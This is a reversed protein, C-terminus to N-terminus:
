KVTPTRLQFFAKQPVSEKPLRLTVEEMGKSSPTITKEMQMQDMTTPDFPLTTSAQIEAPSTLGARRRLTVEITTADNNVKPLVQMLESPDLKRNLPLGLLYKQWNNIGDQFPDKRSLNNLSRGFTLGAARAEAVFDRAPRERRFEFAYNNIFKGNNLSFSVRQVPLQTINDFDVSGYLLLSGSAPVTDTEPTTYFFVPFASEVKFTIDSPVQNILRLVFDRQQGEKDPAFNLLNLSDHTIAAPAVETGNLEVLEIKLPNIVTTPTDDVKLLTNGRQLASLDSRLHQAPFAYQNSFLAENSTSLNEAELTWKEGSKSLKHVATSVSNDRFYFCNEKGAVLRANRGPYPCYHEPQSAFRPFASRYSVRGVPTDEREWTSKEENWQFIVPVLPPLNPRCSPLARRLDERRETLAIQNGAVQLGFPNGQLDLEAMPAGLRAVFLSGNNTAFAVTGAEDVSVGTAWRLTTASGGIKHYIQLNPPDFTRVLTWVNNELKYLDGYGVRYSYDFATTTLQSGVVLYDGSLQISDGFNVAAPRGPIRQTLTWGSSTRRYLYVAGHGQEATELDERPASIALWDGDASLDMGFFTNQKQNPHELKVEPTIGDEIKRYIQVFGDQATTDISSTFLDDKTQDVAFGYNLTKEKLLPRAATFNFSETRPFRTPNATVQHSIQLKPGEPLNSFLPFAVQYDGPQFSSTEVTFQVRASPQDQSPPITVGSITLDSVDEMVSSPTLDSVDLNDPVAVTVTETLSTGVPNSGLDLLFDSVPTRRDNQLVAFENTNPEVSGKLTRRLEVGSDAPGSIILEQSYQSLATDSKGELKLVYTPDSDSTVEQNFSVVSLPGDGTVTATLNMPDGNARQIFRLEELTTDGKRFTPVPITDALAFRSDEGIQNITALPSSSSSFLDLTPNTLFSRRPPRSFRVMTRSRVLGLDTLAFDPEFTFPGSGAFAQGYNFDSVLRNQSSPQFAGNALTFAELHDNDSVVLLQDDQALVHSGFKTTKEPSQSTLTQRPTWTGDTLKYIVVDGANPKPESNVTAEISPRGVVLTDEDLFALSGAETPISTAQTWSGDTRTWLSVKSADDNRHHLALQNGQIAYIGTLAINEFDQDTFVQTPAWNGDDQKQYVRLFNEVGTNTLDGAASSNLHHRRLPHTLVLLQGDAFALTTPASPVQLTTEPQFRGQDSKQYIKLNNPSLLPSAQALAIASPNAYAIRDHGLAFAAMWGLPSPTRRSAGFVTMLGIEEDISQSLVWRSDQKAFVALRARHKVIKDFFQGRDFNGTPDNTYTPFAVVLFQDNAEM